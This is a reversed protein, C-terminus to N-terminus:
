KWTQKSIGWAGSAALIGGGLNEWTGNTVLETAPAPVDLIITGALDNKKIVKAKIDANPEWNKLNTLKITDGIAFPATQYALVHIAAYYNQKDGYDGKGVWDFLGKKVPPPTTDTEKKAFIEKGLEALGKGLGIVDVGTGGTGTGTGSGTGYGTGTGSGTGTGINTNKVTKFPKFILLVAATVVALIGVGIGVKAGTKLAM